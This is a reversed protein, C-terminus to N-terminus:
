SFKREAQISSDCEPFLLRTNAETYGDIAVTRDLVSNREPLLNQRIACLGKQGVAKASAVAAFRNITTSPFARPRSTCIPSRRDRKKEFPRGAM